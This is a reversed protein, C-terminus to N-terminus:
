AVRPVGAPVSVGTGAAALGRHTRALLVSLVVVLAAAGGSHLLAAALPWGLVVNSLGSAAQLLLLALLAAAIRQLAADRTAALRWALLALVAVVVVAALRHTVHIATLAEFPLWGGAGTQGLERRLTFAHGFDM